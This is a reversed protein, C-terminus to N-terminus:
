TNFYQRFLYTKLQSKFVPVSDCLKLSEPLQNWLVASAVRFSRNNTTVTRTQPVVLLSRSASRLARPPQRVEILERIYPPADGRIAKFTYLLVKYKLRQEVPLWHLQILIPTIHDSRRTQSILRAATNQVKQLRDLLTGPLGYYLANAYDLRSTVNAQVLTRCADTTIYRRIKGIKRIQYYCSRTVNNIQKELTLNHDLTVGLNKVCAAPTFISNDLNLTHETFSSKKRRPNFIIFETKDCNLKLMNANMWQKIDSVCAELTQASSRWSQNPRIITYGQSDDAYIMCHVDYKKFIDSVPLTYMSYGRPGLVSGQPVGYQLSVDGSTVSNVSISQTRGSLYSQLWDIAKGAIGQSYTLRQLFISHDLTDFAASIDLMILAVCAGTDLAELIDTHVKLLATETSYNKRYASQCDDLLNNTALHDDIRSSVIRELIKSIFSLNSVPRYNKLPEPDLNSKKLLPRVIARKFDAPVHSTSLSKNVITTILPTLHESCQKILWTPLPDLECSKNPASSLVKKVEDETAPDFHTLPVGTFARESTVTSAQHPINERIKTIKSVFFQSFQEALDTSTTHSPLIAEGTEGLLKKTIKHLQKQDRGCQNIQESYYSQKTSCVLKSVTRCQQRFLEYHVALGTQYWKRERKRREHKAERLDETYWSAHPRLTIVRTQLPAHKDILASLNNNYASVLENLSKSTDQLDPCSSIDNAFDKVCIKNLERYSVVKRPNSPKATNIHFALALHDGAPEGYQNFLHPDFVNPCSLLVADSDRTIVLDLTHGRTHTPEHIHQSLGHPELLSNFKAADANQKDDMHVNFDGTIIIPEPSTALRDLYQSWEELFSTTTLQNQYSPPPRYVTCMRVGSSKSNKSIICDLHELSRFEKDATSHIVKVTLSSRYIVAVGGGRRNTQRPVQHYKYGSQMLEGWVHQDDTNQVWTETLAMVDFNHDRFLEAISVSKNNISQVNLSCVSLMPANCDVLQLFPVKPLSILQRPMKLGHHGREPSRKTVRVPIENSCNPKWLSLAFIRKRLNRSIKFCSSLRRLEYACYSINSSAM